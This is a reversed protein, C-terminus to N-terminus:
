AKNSTVDWMTTVTGQGKKPRKGKKPRHGEDSPAKVVYSSILLDYFSSSPPAPKAQFGSVLTNQLTDAASAVPAASVALAAVATLISIQKKGTM